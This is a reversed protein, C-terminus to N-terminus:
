VSGGEAACVSPEGGRVKETVYDKENGNEAALYFMYTQLLQEKYSGRRRSRIMRDEVVREIDDLPEESSSGRRRSRNKRDEAVRGIEDLLREESRGRRRSRIRRDEVVRGKDERPQEPSRGRHRSM